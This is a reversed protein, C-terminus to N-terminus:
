KGGFKSFLGAAFLYEHTERSEQQSLSSSLMSYKTFHQTVAVPPSIWPLEISSQSEPSSRKIPFVTILEKDARVMQMDRFDFSHTIHGVTFCHLRDANQAFATELTRSLGRSFAKWLGAETGRYWMCSLEHHHTTTMDSITLSSGCPIRDGKNFTLSTPFLVRLVQSATWRDKARRRSEYIMRDLNVRRQRCKLSLYIITQRDRRSVEMQQCEEAGFVVWCDESRLRRMWVIQHLDDQELRPYHEREPTQRKAEPEEYTLDEYVGDLSSLKSSSRLTKRPLSSVLM